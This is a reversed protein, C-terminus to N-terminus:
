QHTEHQHEFWGLLVMDALVAQRHLQAVFAQYRPDAAQMQCRAGGAGQLEGAEGFLPQRMNYRGFYQGPTPAQWFDQWYVGPCGPIAQQLLALTQRATTDRLTNLGHWSLHRNDRHSAPPEPQLARVSAHHQACLNKDAALDRSLQATDVPWSDIADDIMAGTDPRAQVYYDVLGRLRRPGELYVATPGHYVPVVHAPVTLDEVLHALGGVFLLKDQAARNAVWGAQLQQWLGLMSQDILGIKALVQQDPNYFHWHLLRKPLRLADDHELRWWDRLGEASFSFGLGHDMAVNGQLLRSAAASHEISKAANEAEHEAEHEVRHAAVLRSHPSCQQYQSIVLRLLPAHGTDPHYARALLPMVLLACLGWHRGGLMDPMNLRLMLWLSKGIERCPSRLQM